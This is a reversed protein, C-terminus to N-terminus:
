WRVVHDRFAAAVQLGLRTKGTGGPGTLTLLRVGARHLLHQVAAVEKERGILSTPQIPLNHPHTDLTKLPPFDAPLGAIVLQFLHSKQQLDKLHHAGLDRLSVGDPLDRKALDSTTQSLLVQGGHGASMVRAARHVDLGVYGESSLQPEGTHLGIRVPMKVSNPWAHAFLTRQVEVAASVADSARAFVVFFSDGQTDVEHGDHAHFTTRLLSRYEALVGTYREGLQELLHTSGEIDTFLLTVTGVPLHQM